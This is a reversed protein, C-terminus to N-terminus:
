FWIIADNGKRLCNAGGPVLAQPCMKPYLFPVIEATSLDGSQSYSSSERHQGENNLRLTVFFLLLLPCSYNFYSIFSSVFTIRM